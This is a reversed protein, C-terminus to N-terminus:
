SKYASGKFLVHKLYRGHLTYPEYLVTNYYNNNAGIYIMKTIEFTVYRGKFLGTGQQKIIKYDIDMDSHEHDDLDDPYIEAKLINLILINGVIDEKDSTKSNVLYIMEGDSVKHEELSKTAKNDIM